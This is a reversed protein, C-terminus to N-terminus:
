KHQQRDLSMNLLLVNVGPGGFIGVFRADTNEEILKRVDDLQMGRANAVRSTQLRANAVSIHPDLGSASRTVADAPIVIDAGLGNEIRYAAALQKVGAYSEDIEPTNQDDPIGNILKDSSPGLNTGSSNAGDYGSGAASPRPHFYEPKTFTQGIIRSGIVQGKPDAILSGNAQHPFIAQSIGFVAFPFVLGTILIFWLTLAISPWIISQIKM